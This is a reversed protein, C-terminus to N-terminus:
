EKIKLLAKDGLLNAILLMRKIYKINKAVGLTTDVFVCTNSINSVNRVDYHKTSIIRFERDYYEYRFAYDEVIKAFSIFDTMYIFYALKLLLSPINEAKIEYTGIIVGTFKDQNTIEELPKLRCGDKSAIQVGVRDLHNDLKVMKTQASDTNIDKVNASEHIKEETKTVSDEKNGKNDDKIDDNFKTDQKSTNHSKKKYKETKVISGNLLIEDNITVLNDIIGGDNIFKASNNIITDSDINIANIELKNLREVLITVAYKLKEAILQYTSVDRSIYDTMLGQSIDIEVLKYGSDELLERRSYHVERTKKSIIHIALNIKPILFKVRQTHHKDHRVEIDYYLEKDGICLVSKIINAMAVDILNHQMKSCALCRNIMRNHYKVRNLLTYETEHGLECTFKYEEKKNKDINNVIDRYEEESYSRRLEELAFEAKKERYMKELKSEGSFCKPCPNTDKLKSLNFLSTNYVNGCTCRFPIETKCTAGVEHMKLLHLDEAWHELIDLETLVDKSSKTKDRSPRILFINDKDVVIKEEELKINEIKNGTVLINFVEDKDLEVFNNNEDKLKYLYPENAGCKIMASILTLKNM